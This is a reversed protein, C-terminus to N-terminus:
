CNGGSSRVKATGPGPTCIPLNAGDGTAQGGNTTTVTVFGGPTDCSAESDSGTGKAVAKVKCDAFSLANAIGGDSANAQVRGAVCFANTSGANRAISTAPCGEGDADSDSNGISVSRATGGFHGVAQAASSDSATAVATSSGDVNTAANSNDKAIATGKSGHDAAVVSTSM